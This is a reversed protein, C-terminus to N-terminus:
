ELYVGAAGLLTGLSRGALQITMAYRSMVFEFMCRTSAICSPSIDSPSLTRFYRSNSRGRQQQELRLAV